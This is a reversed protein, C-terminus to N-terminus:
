IVVMNVNVLQICRENALRERLPSIVGQIQCKIGRHQPIPVADNTDTNDIPATGYRDGPFDNFMATGADSIPDIPPDKM